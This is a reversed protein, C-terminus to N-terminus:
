CHALLSKDHPDTFLGLVHFSGRRDSTKPLKSTLEIGVLWKVSGRYDKLQKLTKSSPLSDHETFAILGTNFKTASALIALHTQSGDSDSTHNHLSEYQLQRM